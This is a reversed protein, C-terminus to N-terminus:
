RPTPYIPLEARIVTRIQPYSAPLPPFPASNRLMRGAAEDLVASGTSELLTITVLAGGPEVVISYVALREADGSFYQAAPYIRNREVIDRLRNMYADGEADRTSTGGRPSPLRINHFLPTPQSEHHVEPAVAATREGSHALHPATAPTKEGTNAPKQEKSETPQPTPSAEPLAPRPEETAKAETKTESGSTRPTMPPTPTTEVPKPPPPPAPPPEFVLAVPIPTPEEKVQSLMAEWDVTILLFVALHLLVAAILTWPLLTGGRGIRGTSERIDEDRPVLVTM